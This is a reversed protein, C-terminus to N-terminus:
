SIKLQAKIQQIQADMKAMRDDMAKKKGLLEENNPADNDSTSENEIVEDEEAVPMEGIQLDVPLGKLAFKTLQKTMIAKKAAGKSPLLVLTMSGKDDTKIYCQGILTFKKDKKIEEKAMKLWAGTQKGPVILGMKKGKMDAFEYDTKVFFDTATEPSNCQSAM